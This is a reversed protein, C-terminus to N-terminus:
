LFRKNESSTCKLIQQEHKLLKQKTKTGGQVSFQGIRGDSKIVRHCPIILPLPNKALASGVARAAHPSNLNKALRSYSIIQGLPINRCKAFVNRTFPTFEDLSLPLDLKFEAIRGQFYYIIQQQLKKAFNKDYQAFHINKLLGAKAKERSEAPLQCRLLGSNSGALGFYGWTTKFVCYKITKPM